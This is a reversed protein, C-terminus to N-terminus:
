YHPKDPSGTHITHTHIHTHSSIFWCFSLIASENHMCGYTPQLILFVCMTYTPQYHLLQSTDYYLSACGLLILSPQTRTKLKWIILLLKWLIIIQVHFIANNLLRWVLNSEEWLEAHNEGASNWKNLQIMINLKPSTKTILM